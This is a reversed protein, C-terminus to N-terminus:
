HSAPPLTTNQRRYIEEYNKKRKNLYLLYIREISNVEITLQETINLDESEVKISFGCESSIGRPTPIMKLAFGQQLLSVEEKMADHSTKFTLIFSNM